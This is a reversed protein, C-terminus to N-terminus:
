ELLNDKLKFRKKKLFARKTVGANSTWVPQMDLNGLQSFRTLQPVIMKQSEHENKILKILRFGVPYTVTVTGTCHSGDCVKHKSKAIKIM